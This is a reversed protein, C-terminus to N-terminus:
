RMFNPYSFGLKHTALLSIEARVEHVTMRAIFICQQLYDPIKIEQSGPHSLCYTEYM